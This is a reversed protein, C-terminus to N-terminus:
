GEINNCVRNLFLIFDHGTIFGSKDHKMTIHHGDKYIICELKKHKHQNRFTLEIHINKYLTKVKLMDDDFAKHQISLARIFDSKVNFGKPSWVLVSM